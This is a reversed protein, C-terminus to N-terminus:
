AARRWSPGALTTPATQVGKGLSALPDVTAHESAQPSRDQTKMRVAFWARANVTEKTGLLTAQENSHAYLTMGTEYIADVLSPLLRNPVVAFLKDRTGGFPGTVKMLDPHSRLWDTWQRSGPVSIVTEGGAEKTVSLGKKVIKMQAGMGTLKGAGSSSLLTGRDVADFFEQVMGPEHIRLPLKAFSRADAGIPLVVARNTMGHEDSYYAQTGSGTQISMEAARFLNGDLLARTAKFAEEKRSDFEAVLKKNFDIEHVCFGQMSLLTSLTRTALHAQGPLAVQVTYRGAYHTEDPPPVKIGVVVASDEYCDRFEHHWRIRSGVRITCLAGVIADIKHDMQKVMNNDPRTLAEAVTEARGKFRELIKAKDEVLVEVIHDCISAQQNQSAWDNYRATHGYRARASEDLALQGSEIHQLLVAGAMPRFFETYEVTTINVPRDFASERRAHVGTPMAAELVEETLRKAHIDFFRAKLPNTGKLDLEEIYASYELTLSEIIAKQQSVPLMVSRNMLESVYKDGWLSAVPTDADGDAVKKVIDIDLSEALEPNLELFRYAVENGVQNLMDAVDKTLAANDRNATINASMRRLANNQLSIQRNEAPIGSSLTRIIPNSMQGKRNVRGFFQTRKLVDEPVEVEILVRQARNLFRYSDHLSIGANGARTLVMAHADGNNFRDKAARREKKPIDVVLAKGAGDYILRRKRGSLEVVNFGAAEVGQRVVDLPSTPLDPFADILADIRAIVVQMEPRTKIEVRQGDVYAHTLAELRDRLISRFGPAPIVDGSGTSVVLGKSVSEDYRRDLETEMTHDIVFVPKKGERIDLIADEIAVDTKLVALFARMITYLNNGISGRKVVGVTDVDKPKFFPQGANAENLAILADKLEKSMADTLQRTERTLFTMAALIEALQDAYKENRALRDADVRPVFKIMSLDHERRIMAGDEALMSALAEQLAEGGRKLTEHLAEVDVSAPFLRRYIRMNKEGRAFTASSYIVSAARLVGSDLNLNTQSTEGSANHSEDLVLLADKTAKGIWLSKVASLPMKAILAPDDSIDIAEVMLSAAAKKGQSLRRRAVWESLSRTSASLSASTISDLDIGGEAKIAKIPDRNFQSYTGFVIDVNEPYAMSRMVTEVEARPASEAIVQGTKTSVISEGDNLIMIRPFFGESNTDEIDRWIDTFLEAKETLFIVPQGKARAARALAAITRGKGIGTQDAIMFGLGDELRKLGMVVADAQEASLAQTLGADDYHLQRQLWADVHPVDKNIQIMARRLPSALNRPVMLAPESLLSAPIYPAQFVNEGVMTERAVGGREVYPVSGPKRIAETIKTAWTWLSPYDVVYPVAPPLGGHGPIDRKNGVVIMRSPLAGPVGMLTGDIDVIGEIEHLTALADLFRRSSPGIRGPAIDGSIVFIGVGDPTMSQLTQLVSAHDLRSVSTGYAQVARDLLTGEYAALILSAQEGQSAPLFKGITATFTNFEGNPANEIRVTSGDPMASAIQQLSVTVPLPTMRNSDVVSYYQAAEHLRLAAHFAAEDPSEVLEALKRVRAQDIARVVHVVDPDGANMDRGTVAFFFRQLEDVRANHGSAMMMVFADSSIALAGQTSGRLFRAADVDSATLFASEREIAKSQGSGGDDRVRVFRTADPAQFVEEGRMNTGLLRAESIMPSLDIVDGAVQGISTATARVSPALRATPENRPRVGAVPEFGPLLQQRSSEIVLRIKDLADAKIATLPKLVVEVQPFASHFASAEVRVDSRVWLGAWRTRQFGMNKAIYSFQNEEDVFILSSGGEQHDVIGLTVRHASLDPWYLDTIKSATAFSM